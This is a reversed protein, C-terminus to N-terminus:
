VTLSTTYKEAHHFWWFNKSLSSAHNPDPSQTDFGYNFFVQPDQMLDSCIKCTPLVHLVADMFASYLLNIEHIAGIYKLFLGM